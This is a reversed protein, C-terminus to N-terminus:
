KKKYGTTNNKLFEQYYYYCPFNSSYLQLLKHKENESFQVVILLVKMITRPFICVLTGDMGKVNEM